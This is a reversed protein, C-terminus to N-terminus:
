CGEVVSCKWLVAVMWTGSSMMLLAMLNRLRFCLLNKPNDGFVPDNCLCGIEVVGLSM